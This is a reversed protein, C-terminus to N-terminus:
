QVLAGNAPSEITITLLGIGPSNPDGDTWYPVGDGDSDIPRGDSVAMWLKGINLRTTGEVAQNTFSTYWYFRTLSANTVSGADVLPSNTPLYYRSFPGTDYVLNTLVIDNVGGPLANTTLFYANHSSDVTGGHDDLLATDFLNDRVTWTTNGGAFHFSGVNRFLNNRLHVTVGGGTTFQGLVIGGREWYTNTLGCVLTGTGSTTLVISQNYMRSDTFEIAGFKTGIYLLYGDEILQSFDTFRLRLECDRTGSASLADYFCARTGPNGASLEQVMHARGLYNTKLANGISVVKGQKLIFGWQSASYDIGIAVGNTLALTANSVTVGSALFDLIPYHFGIDVQNTDPPIQPALTTNTAILNTLTLPAQTARAKLDQALNSNINATGLGRYPSSEALYHYGSGVTNYVGSSSALTINSAGLIGNTNAVATLLCNTFFGVSSSILNTVADFTVNEWSGTTSGSGALANTLNWALGNRISYGASDAQIATGCLGVQVHRLEHGTGGNFRVGTTAYLIRLNQLAAPQGSVSFDFNLAPSAYYGNLTGAIKEGFSADHTATLVAPRYLDTDTRLIGKVDITAGVGADFKIVTGGELVNNTGYLNVPGTIRYTFQASFTCNTLTSNLQIYDFVLGRGSMPTGALRMLKSANKSSAQLKPLAQAFQLRTQKQPKARAQQQNQLRAAPALAQLLPAVTPFEVTEILFNRGDITAWTKAVPLGAEQTGELPFARGGGISMTGFNLTEDTLDPVLMTARKIADTEEHLVRSGISAAPPNLFETWIEVRTTAPDMGYAAPSPLPTLIIIDQELGARSYTYRVNGLIEGLFADPYVVQNKHIEGVSDKIEAILVSQGSAADTFAVGLVHSRFRKGDPSVLDIAGAANLNPAFTVQHQGLRAVAGQAGIEIEEKSDQWTGDGWYHMGTALEMVKSAREVIQGEETREQWVREWVRHHPGREVIASLDAAALVDCAAISFLIITLNRVIHQTM